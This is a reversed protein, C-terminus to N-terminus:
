VKLIITIDIGVSFPTLPWSVLKTTVPSVTPQWLSYTWHWLYCCLQCWSLEHYETIQKFVICKSIVVMDIGTALSNFSTQCWQSAKNASRDWGYLKSQDAAVMSKPGYKGHFILENNGALFEWWRAPLPIATWWEKDGAPWQECLSLCNSWDVYPHSRPVNTHRLFYTIKTSWKTTTIDDTNTSEYLEIVWIRLTAVGLSPCNYWM